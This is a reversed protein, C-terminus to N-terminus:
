NGSRVAPPSGTAPATHLRLLEIDFVLTSQRPITIAGTSVNKQSTSGYGQESPIVLKRRGGVKMGFMGDKFGAIVNGPLLKANNGSDFLKGDKLYGAYTVWVTDTLGVVEDGTGVALDQIYTGAPLKTMAALNVNLSAAFTETAPNSPPELGTIDNNCAVALSAAAFALSFRASLTRLQM